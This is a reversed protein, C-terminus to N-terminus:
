VSVVREIWVVIRTEICEKQKPKYESEKHQKCRDMEASRMHIVAPDRIYCRSVQQM